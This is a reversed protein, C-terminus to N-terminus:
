VAAPGSAVDGVDRLSGAPRKEAGDAGNEDDNDEDLFVLLVTATAPRTLRDGEM